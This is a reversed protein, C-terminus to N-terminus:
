HLEQMYQCLDSEIQAKWIEIPHNKLEDFSMDLSSAFEWVECDLFPNLGKDEIAQCVMGRFLDWKIDENLNELSM